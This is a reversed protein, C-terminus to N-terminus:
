HIWFHLSEKKKQPPPPGFGSVEKKLCKKRSQPTGSNSKFANRINFFFYFVLVTKKQYHFQNFDILITISSHCLKDKFKEGPFIFKGKKTKFPVNVPKM